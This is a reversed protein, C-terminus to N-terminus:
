SSEFIGGCHLLLRTQGQKKFLPLFSKLIQFCPPFFRCFLSKKLYFCINATIALCPMDPREAFSRGVSMCSSLLAKVVWDYWMDYKGRGSKVGLKVRGAESRQSITSPGTDGDLLDTGTMLLTLGTNPHRVKRCSRLHRAVSDLTKETGSRLTNHILVSYLRYCFM